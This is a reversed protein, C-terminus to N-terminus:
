YGLAGAANEIMWNIGEARFDDFEIYNGDLDWVIEQGVGGGISPDYQPWTQSNTINLGIPGNPDLGVFFNIWATAMQDSVAKAKSVYPQEGGFPPTPMGDSNLNHFVFAVEKFHSAGVYPKIGNPVVDFRYAWSPISHKHWAINARRRAWQMRLDGWFATTRRYQAGLEQAYSDNTKIIHPWKELSPIGVAQINPYVYMIEDVVEDVTKNTNQGLVVSTLAERMDADTNVLRSGSLIGKNMDSGEDTNAGVLIPVKVFRGDELQNTSFDQFFDGDIIPAFGSVKTVNLAYDMEERALKKLCDLSGSQGVLSACTTNTVLNNYIIDANESSTLGKTFSTVTAGFGSQGAAARFLKDDRGNYAFMHATVSMAGASEGWITVKDPSGGFAAINENVWQLALRQDRYGNNSIGAETAEGGSLFGYAGLRYNFSVAVIPTGIKVSQEVIFSLNYRAYASGGTTFGGGHIWFAVPLEATDAVGSPRVVNVYLCDESLKHGQEEIVYSLCNPSYQTASRVDDWSQNLSKAVTFREATQYVQAYPMGLFFDQDYQSSYVGAYTGNKVTVQPGSTSNTAAASSSFLCLALLALGKHSLM